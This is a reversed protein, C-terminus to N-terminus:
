VKSAIGQITLARNEELNRAQNLLKTKATKGMLLHFGLPPPGSNETKKVVQKFFEESQKSKDIWQEVVLDVKEIATRAQEQTCLSSLSENEAWPTPYHPPNSTGFM